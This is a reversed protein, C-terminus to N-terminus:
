FHLETREVFAGLAVVNAARSNGVASAITTAPVRVQYLDDRDTDVPILTTNILVTGNLKLIPAFKELSPLAQMPPRM